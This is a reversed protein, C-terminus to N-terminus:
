KLSTKRADVLCRSCALHRGLDNVLLAKPNGIVARCNYHLRRPHLCGALTQGTCVLRGCRLKIGIISVASASFGPEPLNKAIQKRKAPM